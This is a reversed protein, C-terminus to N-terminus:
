AATPPPLPEEGRELAQEMAVLQSCGLVVANVLEAETKGLRDRNAIDWALLGASAASSLAPRASLGLRECNAGFDPRASVLPIRLLVSARLGTGLNSPCSCLYGLRDSRAFGHGDQELAREVEDLAQTFRVFAGRLDGGAQMSVVRMHDEQNLWVVLKQSEAAFIGRAEPWHRGFGSSLLVPSDPRQFLVHQVRLSEEEAPSMGTPKPLYSTSGSLPFYDGRLEADRIGLLARTLTGEVQCLEDRDCVPPFRFGRLSRSSHVRVSLVHCGLPDICTESVRDIGLDTAHMAGPAPMYGGHRIQIIPDFLERFVDYSDEDCAVAGVVKLFPHGPNDVGAKICRALPVGLKTRRMRLRGYISPDARLIDAMLSSHRSLDPLEEPCNSTPFSGECELDVDVARTAADAVAAAEEQAPRGTTADDADGPAPAAKSPEEVAAEASRQNSSEVARLGDPSAGARDPGEHQLDEALAQQDKDAPAPTSHFAASQHAQSELALAEPAPSARLRQEEALHSLMLAIPDEPRQKLVTHLMGQVVGWLDHSDLYNKADVELRHRNQAKASSEPSMPSTPQQGAAQFRLKARILGGTATHIEVEKLSGDYGAADGDGQAIHTGLKEFADLHVHLSTSSGCLVGGGYRNESNSPGTASAATPAFAFSEGARFPRMRRTEGVRVSLYAHRPLGTAEEVTVNM